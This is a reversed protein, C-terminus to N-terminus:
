FDDNLLSMQNESGAYQSARSQNGKRRGKKGRKTNGGFQFVKDDKDDKKNSKAPTSKTTPTTPTTRNSGYYGSGYYGSYGGYYDNNYGGYRNGGTYVTTKKDQVMEKAEKIFKEIGNEEELVEVTIDASEFLINKQLDYIKCTRENRKNWIVFIYFMDDDLMGLIEGQHTLDVGSPSTGMDVHSHGQFRINSFVEDEQEYLWTQYKIQDTNVTSGTVEQPYVLIDEVIYEDKDLEGYRKAIGHWAVEKDFERVLTQMKTWALETFLIKAKRDVTGITKTYNIKGDSLKANQVTDCFDKVIEEWHEKSLKIYKSM